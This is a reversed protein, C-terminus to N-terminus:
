EFSSVKRRRKAYWGILETDREGVAKAYDRPDCSLIEQKWNERKIPIVQAIPTGKKIIGEFSENIYFPINGAFNQLTDSSVIGSTTIFPLDYRNIPHTILASYGKPTGAGYHAIWAFMQKSMGAPRPLGYVQANTDDVSGRPHAIGMPLQPSSFIDINGAQDKRVEIDACLYIFYGWEMVDHFPLCTKAGKRGFMKIPKDSNNIWTQLSKYWDPLKAPTPPVNSFQVFDAFPRFTIKRSSFFGM